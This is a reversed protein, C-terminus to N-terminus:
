KKYISFLLRSHGMFKMLLKFDNYVDNAIKTKLNKEKLLGRGPNVVFPTFDSGFALNNSTTILSIGDFIIDLNKRYFEKLLIEQTHPTFLMRLKVPNNYKYNFNKNFSDNELTEHKQSFLTRGKQLSFNFDGWKEKFGQEFTYVQKLYFNKHIIIRRTIKYRRVWQWVVYFFTTQINENKISYAPSQHKIWADQPSKRLSNISNKYSKLLDSSLEVNTNEVEYFAFWKAIVKQWDFNELSTKIFRRRTSYAFYFGLTGLLFFVLSLVYFTITEFFLFGFALFLVGAIAFLLSILYAYISLFFKQFKNQPPFNVQSKVFDKFKEVQEQSLNSKILNKDIKMKYMISKFPM